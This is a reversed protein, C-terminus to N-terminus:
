QLIIWMGIVSFLVEIPATLFFISAGLRQLAEPSLLQQRKKWVVVRIGASVLPCIMVCVALVDFPVTFPLLHNALFFLGLFLPIGVLYVILTITHLWLLKKMQVGWKMYYIHNRVHKNRVRIWCM